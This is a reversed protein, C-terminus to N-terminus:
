RSIRHYRYFSTDEMSKAMVPSTFQQFKMAFRIAASQFSSIEDADAPALLVKRAFDFVTADAGPSENKALM